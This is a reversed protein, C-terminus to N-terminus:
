SEGGSGQQDTIVHLVLFLLLEPWDVASEPVSLRADLAATLLNLVGWASYQDRDLSFGLFGPKWRKLLSEDRRGYDSQNQDKQRASQSRIARAGM